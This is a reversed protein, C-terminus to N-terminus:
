TCTGGTCSTGVCCDGSVCSEGASKCACMGDTCLQTGCCENASECIQGDTACCQFPSTPSGGVRRCSAVGCCDGAVSMDCGDGVRNCGDDETCSGLVCIQGECCEGEELNCLAGEEQCTCEGDTCGMHGCCDSADECGTAAKACCEDGEVDSGIVNSCAFAGCCESTDTCMTNLATCMDPGPRCEGETCVGDMCCESDDVCQEGMEQCACAGVGADGRGECLMWGCCDFDSFCTADQGKCCTATSPSPICQASDCCDGSDTCTDGIGTCDGSCFLLDCQLTGTCTFTPLCCPQGDEGCDFGLLDTITELGVCRNTLFSECISGFACEGGLCCSEGDAGCGSGPEGADPREECMGGDSCEASRVCGDESGECCPMGAVGCGSPVVCDGSICLSTTSSGCGGGAGDCCPQGVAGCRECTTGADDCVSGARCVPDGGGTGMCCAGDEVGCGDTPMTCTGGLCALDEGCESSGICDSGEPARCEGTQCLFGACCDAATGCRGGGPRGCCVDSECRLGLDCADGRCCRESGGGCPETERGPASGDEVIVRGDPLRRIPADGTAGDGVRADM